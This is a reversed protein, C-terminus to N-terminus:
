CVSITRASVNAGMRYTSGYLERSSATASCLSTGWPRDDDMKVPLWASASRNRAASPESQPIALTLM